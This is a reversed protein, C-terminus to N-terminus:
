NEVVIKIKYQAEEIDIEKTRISWCGTVHSQVLSSSLHDTPVVMQLPM